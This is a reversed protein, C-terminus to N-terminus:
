AGLRRLVPVFAPAPAPLFVARLSFAFALVFALLLWSRPWVRRWTATTPDALGHPGRARLVVRLVPVIAFAHALLAVAIVRSLKAEDQTLDGVAAVFTEAAAGPQAHVLEFVVMVAARTVMGAGGALDAEAAIAEAL